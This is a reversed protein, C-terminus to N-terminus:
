IRTMEIRDSGDSLRIYQFRTNGGTTSGNFIANSGIRCTTNFKNSQSEISISDNVFKARYKLDAIRDPMRIVISGAVTDNTMGYYQPQQIKGIASKMAFCLEDIENQGIFKQYDNKISVFTTSVAYVLFISFGVLIAHSLLISQGRFGKKESVRSLRLRESNGFSKTKQAFFTRLAWSFKNNKRSASARLKRAARVKADDKNIM